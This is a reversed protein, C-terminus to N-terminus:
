SLGVLVRIGAHAFKLPPAGVVDVYQVILALTEAAKLRRMSKVDFTHRIATAVSGSEQETSEFLFTHAGRYLWPFSVDDLPDPMATSGLVFADDSVVGIGIGVQAHDSVTPPEHPMIVYEGIMRLVTFPTSGIGSQLFTGTVTLLQETRDLQSWQKLQKRGGFTRAM